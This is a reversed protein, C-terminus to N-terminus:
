ESKEYEEFGYLLIAYHMIKLLDKENRGDKKGFRKIYKVINGACMEKEIEMDIWDDIVQGKEKGVYHQNYTSEIYKTITELVRDENYKFDPKSM